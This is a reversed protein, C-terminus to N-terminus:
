FLYINVKHKNLWIAIDTIFDHNNIDILNKSLEAKNTAVRLNALEKMKAINDDIDKKGEDDLIGKFTKNVVDMEAEKAEKYAELDKKLLAIASGLRMDGYYEQLHEFDCSINKTKKPVFRM